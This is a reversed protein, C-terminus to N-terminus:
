CEGNLMGAAGAACGALAANVAQILEDVSVRGNGDGDVNQCVDIASVGLAINVSRVLEDISVGQSGDCDGSCGPKAASVRLAGTFAANEAGTSLWITRGGAPATTAVSARFVLVALTDEGCTTRLQRGSSADVNVDGGVVSIDAATVQDLGPGAIAVWV